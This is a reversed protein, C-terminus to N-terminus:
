RVTYGRGEMCALTARQFTTADAMANPQTTAWRNCDQRDTEIQAPSQGNNPYFIPDPAVPGHDQAPPAAVVRPPPYYGYPVGYYGYPGYPGYYGPGYLPLGVNVGVGVVVHGGAEAQTALLMGLGLAATVAISKWIPKM